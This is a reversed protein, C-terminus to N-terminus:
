KKRLDFSSKLNLLSTNIATGKIEKAFSGSVPFVSSEYFYQLNMSNGSVSPSPVSMLAGVHKLVDELAEEINSCLAEKTLALVM